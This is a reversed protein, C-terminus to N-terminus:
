GSQPYCGHAFGVTADTSGQFLEVTVVIERRSTIHVASWLARDCIAIIVLYDRSINHYNLVLSVWSRIVLCYWSCFLAYLYRGVM